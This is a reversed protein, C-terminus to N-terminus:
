PAIVGGRTRVFYGSTNEIRFDLGFEKGEKVNVGKYIGVLTKSLFEELVM